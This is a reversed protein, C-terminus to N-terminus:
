LRELLTYEATLRLVEADTNGKESIFFVQELKTITDCFSPCASGVTMM